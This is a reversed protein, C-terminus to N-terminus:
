MSNDRGTACQSVSQPHGPPPGCPPQTRLQEAHGAMHGCRAQVLYGESLREAVHQRQRAAHRISALHLGDEEAARRPDEDPRIREVHGEGEFACALGAGREAGADDQHEVVRRVQRVHQPADCLEKGVLRAALAHRAANPSHALLFQERAKRRAPRTVRASRRRLLQPQEVLEALGHAVRGDAPQSLGRGGGDLGGDRPEVRESGSFSSPCSL